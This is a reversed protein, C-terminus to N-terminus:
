RSPAPNAPVAAPLSALCTALRDIVVPWDYARRYAVFGAKAIRDRRQDDELLNLVSQIFGAEDHAPSLALFDAAGAPVPTLLLLLLMGAGLQVVRRM